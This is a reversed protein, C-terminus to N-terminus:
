LERLINLLFNDDRAAKKRKRKLSIKSTQKALLYLSLKRIISMNQPGNDKAIQSKDERFTVDLQWHLGNEISWHERILTAYQAPTKGTLSSIYYRKSQKLLGKEARVREVLIITNLGSWSQTAELFTVQESIYVKRQDNRGHGTDLQQYFPLHAQHKQFYDSVQEYLEGQNQKLALLYDAEKSIIKEAIDKQCGMADISILSGKFDFSDLLVPIATIENSKQAIQRQSFSLKDAAIWVNLLQVLAHKGGAPVTGRVEKGDLCIHKGAVSLLLERCCSMLGKEFEKPELYRMVRWLTDESPIGNVLTLGLEKRLFDLKDRGYDVIEEYDSCDALVGCLMLVLIDTLKHLCRGTVRFDEVGEFHRGLNM